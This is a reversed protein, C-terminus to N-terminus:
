NTTKDRKDLAEQWHWARRLSEEIPIEAHWQLEQEGYSTDAWIQEIDGARRDGMRYPVKRGTAREFSQILELVSLGRGMGVNYIYHAPTAAGVDNRHLRRLAALHAQALDMVDIYDRICTGDPTNYDNGFVVFEKRLGAVTQTLFPILNQPTGVPEEGILASPHAGIPNFYRLIVAQLPMGSRVSDTIIDENIRKTNGYPSTADQRPASETIPLHEATPQGYVTCSSSFVLHQVGYREMCRLLTILSNINNDYYRLPQEVSEGVAKHAAFHIVGEIEGKHHEFIESMATEDTCDVEYFLPRISTIQAIADVVERRSNSLNDVLIVDYGAEQLVVATHSAIYGCGGTLLISKQSHEQM